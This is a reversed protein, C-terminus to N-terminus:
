PQEALWDMAAARDPFTQFRRGSFKSVAMLAISLIGAIGVVASAKMYPGNHQTFDKITALTEANYVTGTADFVSLVSGPPQSAIYRKAEAIAGQFEQGGRLGAFDQLLITKGKHVVTGIRGM